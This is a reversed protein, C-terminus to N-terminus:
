TAPAHPMLSSLGPSERSQKALLLGLRGPGKLSAPGVLCLLFGAQAVKPVIHVM